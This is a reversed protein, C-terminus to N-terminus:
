QVYGLSRLRERMEDELPRAGGPLDEATRRRPEYAAVFRPPHEDAFSAPVVEPRWTGALEQSLPVGLLTLITPAVDLLAGQRAPAPSAGALGVALVAQIDQPQPVRGPHTVLVVTHGPCAAHLRGVLGDLAAYVRELGRLREALGSAPAAAAGQLAAQAIDLGPLYIAALDATGPGTEALLAAQTADVEVAQEVVAAVAPPLDGAARSAEARAAAALAPWRRSLRDHLAAPTVEGALAGGHQLRLVARETVVIDGDRPAAPWTTWWNVVATRLGAGSAVEWFAPEQRENGSSVVPRTLRLLDTAAALVPAFGRANGPVRGALGAVRRSELAVAGHRAPPQGTAISAWVPVPDWEAERPMELTAGDLLPKLAPLLGAEALNRAFRPDFGDVGIVLLRLGTPVVVLRAAPRTDPAPRATAVLLAAASAVCAVALLAATRWSFRLRRLPADGGPAVALVAQATVATSYGLLLSITAAVIVALGTARASGAVAAVGTARWWLTLYALCALGVLAGAAVAARRARPVVWAGARQSRAVRSAAITVLFAAAATVAGFLLGLYIAVVLADRVGTVLAPMRVAVGLAGSVGVLVGALAGIRLSAHWALARVGRDTRASGLVYRDVGADLYGLARLKERLADVDPGPPPAARHDPV